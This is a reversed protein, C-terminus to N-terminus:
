APIGGYIGRWKRFFGETHRQYAVAVGNWTNPDDYVDTMPRDRWGIWMDHGEAQGFWNTTSTLYHLVMWDLDEAVLSNIENNTTYPTKTSGLIERAVMLNNAHILIRNFRMLMRRGRDTTLGHGHLIMQQIGTVSLGVTTKNSRTVGDEGVHNGVLAEGSTFGTYATDTCNNLVSAASIETRERGARLLEAYATRFVDYQEDRLAEFTLEIAKGFPNAQFTKRGQIIYADRPFQEGVPKADMVGFGTVQQDTAPNHDMDTEKIWEPYEPPREEGVELAVRRLDIAVLAAISGPTVPTAGGTSM